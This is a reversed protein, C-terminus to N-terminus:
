LKCYIKKKKTIDSNILTFNKKNKLYDFKKTNQDLIHVDIKRKNKENFYLFLYVLYSLLFGSGGTILIKKGSLKKLDKIYEEYIDICDNKIISNM